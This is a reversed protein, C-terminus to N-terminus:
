KETSLYSDALIEYLQKLSTLYQNLLTTWTSEYDDVPYNIGFYKYGQIVGAIDTHIPYGQRVRGINRLIDTISKNQCGLTTLFNELLIVSGLETNTENNLKRLISINLHRSIQGLSSIRHSFEEESKATKFFDLLNREENLLLLREKHKSYFIANITDRIEIISAALKNEKIEQSLIREGIEIEYEANNIDVLNDPNYPLLNSHTSTLLMLEESQNLTGEKLKEVIRDKAIKMLIKVLNAYDTKPNVSWFKYGWGIALEASISVLIKNHEINSNEDVLDYWFRYDITDRSSELYHESIFKITKFIKNERLKLVYDIGRPSLMIKNGFNSQTDILDKKALYNIINNAQTKDIGLLKDIIKCDYGKSFDKISKFYLTNLYSNSIQILDM